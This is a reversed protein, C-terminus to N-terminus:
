TTQQQSFTYIFSNNNHHHNSFSYEDQHSLTFLPYQAFTLASQSFPQLPLSVSLRITNLIRADGIYNSRTESLYLLPPLHHNLKALSTSVPVNSYAVRALSSTASTNTNYQLHVFPPCTLRRLSTYSSRAPPCLDQASSTPPQPSSPSNTGFPSTFHLESHLFSTPLLVSKYLLVGM